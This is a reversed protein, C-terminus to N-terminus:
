PGGQAQLVCAHRTCPSGSGATSLGLKGFDRTPSVWLAVEKKLRRDKCQDGGGSMVAEKGPNSKGGCRQGKQLLHVAPSRLCGHGIPCEGLSRDSVNADNQTVRRSSGSPIRNEGERRMAKGAGERVGVKGRQFNQKPAM